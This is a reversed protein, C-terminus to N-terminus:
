EAQRPFSSARSAKFVSVSNVWVSPRQAVQVSLVLGGWQREIQLSSIRISPNSDPKSCSSFDATVRQRSPKTQGIRCSSTRRAASLREVVSRANFSVRRGIGALVMLAIRVSLEVLM